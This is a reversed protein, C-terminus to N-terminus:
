KKEKLELLEAAEARFRILEENSPHNKEMWLVAKDHWSRAQPKDGRQWHAMALFFANFGLYKEPALAEAKTLADIAARWDGARYQAVGLTNFCMASQPELEVAKRALEVAWGPDRLCPDSCTVLSWAVNNQFLALAGHYNPAAPFDVVLRDALALSRRFANAAEDPRGAQSVIAGLLTYAKTRLLRNEASPLFAGTRELACLAERALDEGDKGHGSIQRAQAQDLKERAYQTRGQSLAAAGARWGPAPARSGEASMPPGGAKELQERSTLRAANDLLEVHSQTLGIKAGTLVEVSTAIGEADDPLEPDM